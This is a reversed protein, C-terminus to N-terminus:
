VEMFSYERMDFEAADRNIEMQCICSKLMDGDVVSFGWEEYKKIHTMTSLLQNFEFKSCTHGHSLVEKIWPSVTVIGLMQGPPNVHVEASFCSVVAEGRTCPWQWPSVSSLHISM